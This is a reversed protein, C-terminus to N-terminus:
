NFIHNQYIKDRITHLQKLYGYLLIISLMKEDRLSRILASYPHCECSNKLDNKRKAFGSLFVITLQKLQLYM